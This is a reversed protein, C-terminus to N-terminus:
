LLKQFNSLFYNVSVLLSKLLVVVQRYVPRMQHTCGTMIFRGMRLGQVNKHRTSIGSLIVRGSTCTVFANNVCKVRMSRGATTWQGNESATRIRWQVSSSTVDNTGAVAESMLVVGTLEAMLRENVSSGIEWRSLVQGGAKGLMTRYVFQNPRREHQYVPLGRSLTAEADPRAKYIGNFRVAEPYSANFNGVFIRGTSCFSTVGSVPMLVCVCVCLGVM